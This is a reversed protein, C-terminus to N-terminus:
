QKVATGALYNSPDTVDVLNMVQRTPNVQINFTWGCGAGCTLGATGSGNANLSNIAFTETNSSPGCGSNGTLTGTAVGSSNLTGTFLLSSIGCGTNGVVAVQWPGALQSITIPPAGNANQASATIPALTITAVLLLALVAATPNLQRHVKM